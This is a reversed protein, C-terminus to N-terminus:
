RKWNERAANGRAQMRQLSSRIFNIVCQLAKEMYVLASETGNVVKGKPLESGSPYNYAIM